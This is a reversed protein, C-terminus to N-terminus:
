SRSGVLIRMRFRSIHSFTIRMKFQSPPLIVSLYGRQEVKILAPHNFGSLLNGVYDGGAVDILNMQPMMADDDM